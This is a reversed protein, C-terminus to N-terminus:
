PILIPSTKTIRFYKQLKPLILEQHKKRIKTPWNISRTREFKRGEEKMRCFGLRLKMKMLLRRLGDTYNRGCEYYCQVLAIGIQLDM